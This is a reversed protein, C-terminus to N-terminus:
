QLRWTRRVVSRQWGRQIGCASAARATTGCCASAGTPVALALDTDGDGDVDGTTVDAISDYLYYRDRRRPPRHRRWDASRRSVGSDCRSACSTSGTIATSTVSLPRAPTGPASILHYEGVDRRGRRRGAARHCVRRRYTDYPTQSVFVSTVGLDLVGDDNFDGVAVSTPSGLSASVPRPRRVDRGRQGPAPRVTTSSDVAVLDLKGDRDFDGVAFSGPRSSGAASSVPPQFTGDANGLLVGVSPPSSDIAVLSTPDATTTSTRTPWPLIPPM